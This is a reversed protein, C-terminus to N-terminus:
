VEYTYMKQRSINIKSPTLLCSVGAPFRRLLLFLEILSTIVTIDISWAQVFQIEQRSRAVFARSPTSVFTVEYFTLIRLNGRSDSGMFIFARRGM